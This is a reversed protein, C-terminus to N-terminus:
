RIRDGRFDLGIELSDNLMQLGAFGEIRLNGVSDPLSSSFDALLNKVGVAHLVYAHFYDALKSAREGLWSIHAQSM